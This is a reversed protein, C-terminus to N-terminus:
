NMAIADPGFMMATASGAAEERYNRPFPTTLWSTIRVSSGHLM